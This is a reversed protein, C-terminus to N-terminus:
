CTQQGNRVEEKIYGLYEQLFPYDGHMILSAAIIYKRHRELIKRPVESKQVLDKIPLTGNEQMKEFIDDSTLLTAVIKACSKKTKEAKPSAEALDFFTIGFVSLDEAVAEIEDRVSPLSIDETSLEGSKRKVEVQFATPEEGEDLDGDLVYPEAAIEPLYRNEARLYDVLRRRIVLAAFGEFTGRETQYSDIAENFAIMAISCEDDEETVFHKTAKYACGLIFKMNQQIFRNRAEADSRADELSITYEM